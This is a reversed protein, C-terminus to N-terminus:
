RKAQATTLLASRLWESMGLGSERIADSVVRYDELTLRVRFFRTKRDTAKM